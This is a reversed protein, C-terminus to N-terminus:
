GRPHPEKMTELSAVVFKASEELIRILGKEAFLFGCASSAPLGICLPGLVLHTHTQPREDRVNM